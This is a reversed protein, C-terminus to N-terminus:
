SSLRNDDDDQDIFFQPTFEAIIVTGKPHNAQIYLKGGLNNAREKMIMLGHHQSQDIHENPIGIGDDSVRLLIKNNSKKYNLEIEVQSANAHRNINSLAERTIQILDFQENASLNLSMVRNKVNISFNGKQAFENAADLLTEDFSDNHITLRFTVLLERLQHYASNLGTKIQDITQKIAQASSPQNLQRELMSIQIKLYSLSQALSDHLERAITTREELLILQQEQQRQKRLSLATSILNTLAMMLEDNEAIFSDEELHQSANFQSPATADIMPIHNSNPLPQQHNQRVRLEGFLQNQHMIPYSHTYQSKKLECADCTNKSCLDQIQNGHLAIADKDKLMEQQICLTIDLDPLIRSFKGILAHLGQLTVPTTTLHQAFGYLLTLAQNATTLHRTKLKVEEELSKQHQEITKAMDNFSEGLENFEDYGAINVRTHRKGHKFQSNAVILQQVPILVNQQLEHMGALMIIITIILSITQLIQQWNQRQENRYQLENVLKDVDNIFTLSYQYFAKQNHQKLEPQLYQQWQQEVKELQADILQHKNTSNHQYHNLKNLRNQMDQSLEDIVQQQNIIGDKSQQHISYPETFNIALQYNIRYAAMRISGATNIAEADAESIWALLGSGIATTIALVSIVIVAAWARVPLSHRLM